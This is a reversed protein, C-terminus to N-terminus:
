CVPDKRSNSLVHEKNKLTPFTLKKRQEILHCILQGFSINEDNPSLETHLYLTHDPTLQRKILDVLVDNQFVGGSLAIKSTKLHTARQRILGALSYHFKAAIFDKERKKSIDQVIGKMLLTTPIKGTLTTESFYDEKCKLGNKKFYRRAATELLMAAEGEFSAIDSLGLLCSVADFIRGMSSTLLKEKRQLLQQYASWETTSFKANLLSHSEPLGRTASLAALRPERAMKDGSIFDFYEFYGHRQFDYHDYVFFEGGWIQGDMGLGTGDWIVGLISEQSDVLNKEGLIAGFHALHHQYYYIPIAYQKALEQGYRTSFYDPHLDALIAAPQINLLKFFHKLCYRYNEQAEYDELNGLYQSIYCNQGKTLTFTSKLLAGMALTNKDPLRLMPNIYTPAMGRSRRMIIPQSEFLSFKVVSDDQPVVIGRDNTLIYDALGSLKELAQQDDFLIPSSSINGSTAILPKAVEKMLLEYLPTYPLMVGIQDLGPAITSLSLRSQMHEKRNLLLVPSVPGTLLRTEEDRLEVDEKLLTLHPYLLAFPKAPRHKRVRLRQITSASSADCLLLYGGIGKVAVIMEENLLQKVLTIMQSADTEVLQGDSRYLKLGIGCTSCSNTQSYYRRHQPDNYEAWCAACQQFALMTTATRDYPLQQIVSYRPGCNVCTIFAYGKRRNDEQWLERRCDECLAVDPTLLLDSAAGETSHVIQFNTFQRPNAMEILSGTIRALVPAEQLIQQYFDHAKKETTNFTIHVGDLTNGVEGNIGLAHALRYIFPRFGVGQVQGHIHVHWTSM